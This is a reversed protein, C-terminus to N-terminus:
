QYIKSEYIYEEVEKTVLYKISKGHKIRYKIDTSSIEVKRNNIKIVNTHYVEKIHNICQILEAEKYGPRSGVIFSFETLLEKSQYWKEIDLFADTGTIFFLECKGGLDRKCAKLTNITYSIEPTDLEQRSVQLHDNGKIAEKIMHYRHNGDAIKKNRKFPQIMTPMIIVQDLSADEKAQEALLLHGIHIPDFTGGLIGIKKM